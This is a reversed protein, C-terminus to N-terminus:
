SSDCSSTKMHSVLGHRTDAVGPITCPKQMIGQASTLSTCSVEFDKIYASFETEKQREINSMQIQPKPSLQCVFIDTRLRRVAALVEDGLWSERAKENDVATQDLSKKKKGGKKKKKLAEKQAHRKDLLFVDEGVMLKTIGEPGDFLLNSDHSSESLDETPCAPIILHNNQPPMSSPKTDGSATIISSLQMRMDGFSTYTIDNECASSLPTRVGIKYWYKALDTLKEEVFKWLEDAMNHIIHKKPNYRMANKFVLNLDSCVEQFDDYDGLLCQTLITGLDMPKKIIDHYDRLKLAVANVPQHFPSSLPHRMIYDKILTSVQMVPCKSHDKFVDNPCFPIEGVCAVVKKGRIYRTVSASHARSAEETWFDGDLLPPAVIVSHPLSDEKGICQKIDFKKFSHEYLSKVDTVIGRNAALSLANHYWKLLLEKSPTRQTSPHGWFVFSNGRTPPCSWIHAYEYGRARATALYSVLIEHYINTRLRRPKFHEVSDIYAIYIRKRQTSSEQDDGNYEQVYMTFICVDMGDIRQFLSIAKSRYSICSPPKAFYQVGSVGSTELSDDLTQQSRFHKLVVDPVNFEKQYDSIVRVTLTHEADKPCKLEIMREKVKAEIFDSIECSMLSRSDFPTGAIVDAVLEPQEKGTLFSHVRVNRRREDDVDDSLSQEDYLEKPLASKSCQPCVYNDRDTCFENVFACIEHSFSVCKTCKIWREVVDEDNRRKLLHKKYMQGSGSLSSDGDDNPLIAPLSSYCKQCWTKTGDATCYYHIGRRIKTGACASGACILLSPEMSLCGEHCINCTQGECSQCIHKVPPLQHYLMQKCLQSRQVNNKTANSGVDTHATHVHPNSSTPAKDYAKPISAATLDPLVPADVGVGANADSTACAVHGKNVHHQQQQQQDVKEQDGCKKLINAYHEEFYVLLHKAAEHVPHMPPNYLCANQFVLRIDNAVDERGNYQCEVSCCSSTTTSGEDSGGRAYLNSLLKTKITGLDMPRKIITDYDKLGLAEANVPYNFTGKRNYSQHTILRYLLPKMPALNAEIHLSNLHLQLSEQQATKKVMEDDREHDGLISVRKSVKQLATHISDEHDSDGDCSVVSRVPSAPIRTYPSLHMAAASASGLPKPKPKSPNPGLGQGVGQGGVSTNGKSINTDTMATDADIDMASDVVDLPLRKNNNENGDQDCHGDDPCPCSCSCSHVRPCLMQKKSSSSPPSLIGKMSVIGGSKARPRKRGNRKPTTQLVSTTSTKTKAKAKTGAMSMSMAQEQISGDCHGDSNCMSVCRTISKGKRNTSSLTKPALPSQCSANNNTSNSNNVM